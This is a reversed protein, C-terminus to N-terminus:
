HRTERNEVIAAHVFLLSARVIGRIDASEEGDIGCGGRVGTAGLRSCQKACTSWLPFREM